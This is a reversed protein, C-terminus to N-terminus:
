TGFPDPCKQPGSMFLVERRSPRHTVASVAPLSLVKRNCCSRPVRGRDQAGADSQSTMISHSIQPASAFSCGTLITSPLFSTDILGWWTAVSDCYDGKHTWFTPMFLEPANLSCCSAKGSGCLAQVRCAIRQRVPPFTRAQYGPIQGNSRQFRLVLCGVLYGCLTSRRKGALISSLHRHERGQSASMPM